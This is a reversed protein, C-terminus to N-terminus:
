AAIRVPLHAIGHIFNSRLRVPPGAVEIRDFRALIEEWLIRLQMEAVHNGMCRHIGFGFSTHNRANPRGIDFRYPDAFKAEDRNASVYWLVVKDGEAITKGGIEAEALATRRMHLVPTQWRIIEHVMNPVLGPDARLRDYQDPHENLALLGGSISNRTTDNGGVILLLVNGLLDLPAHILERTDPHHAMLSLFDFRPGAGGRGPARERWLGTFVDLCEMLARKREEHTVGTAGVQSTATAMDSWRTLLHRDEWPFDFLTALMQTTLEISVREVWDFAEGRPLGELITGVRARILAELEGLRAPGVAPMVPKRWQGHIPEDAAIFSNLAFDEFRDGIFIGAKSSFVRPNTEVSLIDQWRTVSWYPGFASGPCFHVPDERRVRDFFAWHTGAEFRRPDALDIRELPLSAADEFGPLDAIDASSMRPGSQRQRLTERGRGRGDLAFIDLAFTDLAFTAGPPL